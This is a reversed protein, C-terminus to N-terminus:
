KGSLVDLSRHLYTICRDVVLDDGDDRLGSEADLSLYSRMAGVFYGSSTFSGVLGLSDPGLGGAIVPLVAVSGNFVRMAIDIVESTIPLGEGASLDVLVYKLFPAYANVRDVVVDLSGGAQAIAVKGVQLIPLIESRRLDRVREVSPWAINLQMGCGSYLGCRRSVEVLDAEVDESHYHVVNFVAPHLLSQVDDVAPYRKFKKVPRGGLTKDSVLFGISLRRDIRDGVDDANTDNPARRVIEEVQERTTVGTIGIYPARTHYLM